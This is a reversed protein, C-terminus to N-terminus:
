AKEGFRKPKMYRNILPTWANMLLIAFSIGEPYAGWVRIIVTIVGIGVGYLLQGKPSMPSTVMDTAMYVAGLILGGALIHFIPHAYQEPNVLWLVGTFVAVSGFISMPIHWTIIKRVLMYVFGLLLAIASVEGLSGGSYGVLMHMIDPATELLSSVSEGQKLGEKLIALPTAGTTGDLSMSLPAPVPWHTMQVPFSILTFVRGVLAPNFPNQGLGGFSLKGVGIAVLSGIFIIHIPLNSPVNYALLLGTLIASGDGITSKGKIIYKVILYEFLVASGVSLSTVYIAGIGFFYIAVAFAPIMSFLVGYMIKSSSQSDHVHPSPSVTLFKSM